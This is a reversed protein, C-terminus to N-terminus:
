MVAMECFMVVEIQCAVIEIRTMPHITHFDERFSELRISQAGLSGKIWLRLSSWTESFPSIRVCNYNYRVYDQLLTQTHLM